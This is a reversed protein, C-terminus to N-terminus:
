ALRRDFLALMRRWAREAQAEHYVGSDPICWGHLADEYVEIEAEVSASSFANRLVAKEDPSREDDNSAIAILFSANMQPILRHPSNDAETVLGGGHFSCGAGIREPMAAALRMCYSGTMCYGMSGIAKSTDVAPQTDLWEVFATGDTLCTEPSLTRAFPMLVDRMGPDRFGKEEPIVPGNQTRYYPNIVLVAYGSEALRTGMARFTERIGVISPWFMVAASAGAAPHVFYADAEGDPTTITVDSGVVDVANGVQPLMMAVAAGIGTGTFTRRTIRNRRLYEDIDRETLEDCM